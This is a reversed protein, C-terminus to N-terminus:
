VNAPAAGHMRTVRGALTKKLLKEERKADRMELEDFRRDFDNVQQDEIITGKPYKQKEPLKFADAQEENALPILAFNGNLGTLKSAAYRLGKSRNIEMPSYFDTLRIVEGPYLMLGTDESNTKLDPVILAMLSQNQVLNYRPEVRQMMPDAITANPNGTAPVAREELSEKHAKEEEKRAAVEAPSLIKTKVTTLDKDAATIGAKTDVDGANTGANLESSTGQM